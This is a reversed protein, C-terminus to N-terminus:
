HLILQTQVRRPAPTSRDDDKSAATYNGIKRAHGGSSDGGQQDEGNDGTIEQQEDEQSPHGRPSGGRIVEKDVSM